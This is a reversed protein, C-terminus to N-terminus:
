YKYAQETALLLMLDFYKMKNNPLKHGNKPWKQGNNPWKQRWPWEADWIGKKRRWFITLNPWISSQTFNWGVKPNQHLVLGDLGKDSELSPQRGDFTTKWRLTDEMLPQRGDFKTKWRLNDEMLPRRGYFTMKQWLIEEMSPHRGDFTMKWWLDDEM